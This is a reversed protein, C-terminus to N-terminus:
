HEIEFYQSKCPIRCPMTAGQNKIEHWHVGEIFNKMIILFGRLYFGWGFINLYSAYFNHTISVWMLIIGVTINALKEFRQETILHIILSWTAQHASPFAIEELIRCILIDQSYMLLQFSM